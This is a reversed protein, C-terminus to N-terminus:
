AKQFCSMGLVGSMVTKFACSEMTKEIMKEEPSKQMIPGWSRPITFAPSQRVDRSALTKLIDQVEDPPLVVSDQGSM